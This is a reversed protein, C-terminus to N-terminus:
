LRGFISHNHIYALGYKLIECHKLLIDNQNSMVNIQFLMIINVAITKRKRQYAIANHRKSPSLYTTDSDRIVSANNGLMYNILEVLVGLFQLLIQPIIVHHIVYRTAVITNSYTAKDTSDQRKPYWDVLTQNSSHVNGQITSGMFHDYLLNAYTLFTSVSTCIKDQYIIILIIIALTVVFPNYSNLTISQAPDDDPATGITEFTKFKRHKDTYKSNPHTIMSTPNLWDKIFGAARHFKNVATRHTPEGYVQKNACSNHTNKVRPM